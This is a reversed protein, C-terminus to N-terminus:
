MSLCCENEPSISNLRDIGEPKGARDIRNIMKMWLGHKGHQKEGRGREKNPEKQNERRKTNGKTNTEETMENEQALWCCLQNKRKSGTKHCFETCNIYSM